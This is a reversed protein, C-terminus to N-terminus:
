DVLQAISGTICIGAGDAAYNKNIFIMVSTLAEAAASNALPGAHLGRLGAAEALAVVRARAAKQDGFILVDCDVNEDTALKHAAVNHFASVLQADDGLMRQAVLAACGEPPLQVRAVKPPMLPVTTDVVLKGAVMPRIDELIATQSAFPVTVVIIDAQRAAEGNSAGRMAPSALEGNLRSAEAEAKAADRSGIIVPYGAKAWRRALAWGLNGTGGVVAITPKDTTM